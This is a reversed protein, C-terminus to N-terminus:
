GHFIEAYDGIMRFSIGSEIDQNWEEGSLRRIGTRM